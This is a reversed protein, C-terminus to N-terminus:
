SGVPLVSGAPLWVNTGDCAEDVVSGGAFWYDRAPLRERAAGPKM